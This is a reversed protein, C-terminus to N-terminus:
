NWETKFPIINLIWSIKKEFLNESTSWVWDKIYPVFNDANAYIELMSRHGSTNSLQSFNQGLELIKWSGTGQKLIFYM